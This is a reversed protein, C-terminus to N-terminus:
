RLQCLLARIRSFGREDTDLEGKGKEVQGAQGTLSRLVLTAYKVQALGTLGGKRKNLRPKIGISLTAYKVPAARNLESPRAYRM